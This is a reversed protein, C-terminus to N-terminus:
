IFPPSPPDRVIRLAISFVLRHYRDFLISLANQRGGRVHLMLEEDALHSLDDYQFEPLEALNKV